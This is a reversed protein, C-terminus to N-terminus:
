PKWEVIRDGDKLTLKDAEIKVLLSTGVQAGEVLRMGNRMVVCPYPVTLIGAIPYNRVPLNPPTKLGVQRSPAKGQVFPSKALAPPPTGGVCVRSADLREVGKVDADIARVARELAAADPAYGSLVVVRNSAAEVKLAGDSCAFVLESAAALLTEDDTLDFKVKPDAALALARIALRETRRRLNGSLVQHDTTPQQNNTASLAALGKAASPHRSDTLVLGYQKAIDALTMKPVATSAAARRTLRSDSWSRAQPCFIWAIVAVVALLLLVIVAAVLGGRRRHSTGTADDAASPEEEKQRPSSEADVPVSSEPAASAATPRVPIVLDQWEGDVPGVAVSTTGFSRLEFPPLTEAPAGGVAIRVGVEDAELEFAKAPLTADQVVIDCSDGSGFTMAVGPVLAIEAGKMPGEVIKLLWEM